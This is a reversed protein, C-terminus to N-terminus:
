EAGAKEDQARRLLRAVQRAQEATAAERRAAECFVRLAALAERSVQQSRFIATMENAITRVRKTEGLDLLVAAFDLSALAHDYSLEPRNFADRVQDFRKWSEVLKGRGAEVKAELWLVRSLDLEGGLQEALRRVEPLRDHAEELRGLLLLDEVLQHRVMWAMRPEQDVDLLPLAQLIAHTSAEPDDMVKHINAKTLLIKGRLEGDDLALAEEIKRLAQPLEREDRYLAAEIWPLLAPNLLGPDSPEGEDWLHRARARTKRAAPLDNCVRHANILAALAFGELRCSWERIGTVLGAIRVALEALALAEKPQNPAAAISEWVVHVCLGWTRFRPDEEVILPRDEPAFRKLRRWLIEARDQAHVAEGGLTLLHLAARAFAAALRGVKAAIAEIKRTRAAVSTAPSTRAEARSAEMDTLAADIRGPGLGMHGALVELKGRSLRKRGNELDNVTHAPLGAVEELRVQSWGLTERLYRLVISMDSKSERAM